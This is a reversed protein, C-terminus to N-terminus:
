EFNVPVKHRGIEEEVKQNLDPIYQSIDFSGLKFRVGAIVAIWAEIPSLDSMLEFARAGKARVLEVHSARISTAESLNLRTIVRKSEPSNKWHWLLFFMLLSDAITKGCRERTSHIADAGDLEIRKAADQLASLTIPRAMRIETVHASMSMEQNPPPNPRDSVEKLVRYIIM